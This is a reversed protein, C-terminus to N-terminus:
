VASYTITVTTSYSGGLANPDVNLKFQHYETGQFAGTLESTYIVKEGTDLMTFMGDVTPDSSVAMYIYLGNNYFDGAEIARVQYNQNTDITVNYVGTTYDPIPPNDNTGALVTGFDVTDYNFTVTLYPQVNATVTVTDSHAAPIILLIALLPLAYQLKM